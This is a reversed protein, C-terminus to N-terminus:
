YLLIIGETQLRPAPRRSPPCGGIAHSCLCVWMLWSSQNAAQTRRCVSSAQLCLSPLHSPVNIRRFFWVLNWYVIPHADVFSAQALAGDGEQDLINEVEKRLVLPSLYPVSNSTEEIPNTSQPKSSDQALPHDLVPSSDELLIFAESGSDISRSIPPPPPVHERVVINLLPVLSHSCHRCSTNLNSDDATWGEMIDEDYLLSNCNLCRSVTTMLVELDSGTPETTAAPEDMDLNQSSFLPVNNGTKDDEKFCHDFEVEEDGFLDAPRQESATSAQDDTDIASDKTPTNTASISQRFKNALSSTASRLGEMLVEANRNRLLDALSARPPTVPPLTSSRSLRPEEICATSARRSQRAHFTSSRSVRSPPTFSSGFSAALSSLDWSQWADRLPSLTSYLFDRGRSNLSDSAEEDEEEEVLSDEPKMLSQSRIPINPSRSRPQESDLKILIQDDEAFSKSRLFPAHDDRALKEGMSHHRRRQNPFCIHESGDLFRQSTMLLGAPSDVTTDHLQSLSSASSKVISGVRSRFADSASFDLEKLQTPKDACYRVMTNYHLSCGRHEACLCEAIKKSEEQNLSSYGADSLGGSSHRDDIKLPRTETLLEDSGERSISASGGRRFQAVGMVVNRLKNWLLKGTTDGSPWTSELVAQVALVQSCGDGHYCM